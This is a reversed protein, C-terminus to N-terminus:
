EVNFVVVVKQHELIVSHMKRYFSEYYKSRFKENAKPKGIKALITRRDHIIQFSYM